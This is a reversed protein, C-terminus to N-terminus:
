EPEPSVAELGGRGRRFFVKGSTTAEHQVFGTRQLVSISPGLEAYTTASIASVAPDAFAHALLASVAETAYGLRQHEPVVAYGIEVSGEANPTDPFGAVGVLERTDGPVASLLLYYLVWGATEPKSELRSRLRAM